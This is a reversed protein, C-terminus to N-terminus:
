PFATKRAASRWVYLTNTECVPNYALGAFYPARLACALAHASVLYLPYIIHSLALDYPRRKCARAPMMRIQRCLPSTFPAGVIEM